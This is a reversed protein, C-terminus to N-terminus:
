VHHESLPRVALSVTALPEDDILLKFAYDGFDPIALPTLSVALNATMPYGPGRPRLEIDSPPSQWVIDGDESVFHLLVTHRSGDAVSGSIRALLAVKPHVSPVSQTWIVDFIGIASPKGERSIIAEDAIHFFDVKV